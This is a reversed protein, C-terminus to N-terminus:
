LGVNNTDSRWENRGIVFLGKLRERYMECVAKAIRHIECTTRIRPTVLM